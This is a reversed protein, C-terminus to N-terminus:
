SGLWVLVQKDILEDRENCVQVIVGSYIGKLIWMYSGEM